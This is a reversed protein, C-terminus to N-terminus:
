QALIRLFDGNDVQLAEAVKPAIIVTGRERNYAAKAATARFHEFSTNCMLFDKSSSHEAIEVKARVSDRVSEINRLDCEVSPGADFIDVYNRCTFGEKELLALAPRTKEHVQGIVAQAEKSLLNIYIPLKPMLDAIFGKKGIGTLYDAMTFDISFFHEQLWKWFPSNGQEDSVGRMEAFITKSFRHPHEAMMLFRCKSMLRGNLGERFPARLFLTCIESCGTYNNGFTLLKVVNNVGLKPSAHVITSIHYSYFPIDWGVSAEVGTTGAVEGTESDFGVMLYGEDGPQNVDPKTFSYESHKIRNTLLEENVPLSTFGHGSEVACTHLAEYDSIAIPRVVLM